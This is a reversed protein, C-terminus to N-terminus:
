GEGGHTRGTNRQHFLATNIVTVSRQSYRTQHDPM